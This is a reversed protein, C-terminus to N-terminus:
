PKVVVVRRPDEFVVRMDLGRAQLATLTQHTMYAAAGPENRWREAFADVTPLWRDPEQAQGFEFESRYDLLIVSRKLYFPLTQDCAQVHGYANHSSM